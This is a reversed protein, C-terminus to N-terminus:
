QDFEIFYVISSDTAFIHSFKNIVLYKSICKFYFSFMLAMKGIQLRNISMSYDVNEPTQDTYWNSNSRHYRGRLFISRSFEIEIDLKFDQGTMQYEPTEPTVLLERLFQFRSGLAIVLILGRIQTRKMFYECRGMQTCMELKYGNPLQTLNFSFM